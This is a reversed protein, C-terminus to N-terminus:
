IEWTRRSMYVNADISNQYQNQPGCDTLTSTNAKVHHGTVVNRGSLMMKREVM